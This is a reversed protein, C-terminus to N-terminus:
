KEYEKDGDHGNGYSDYGKGYSDYGKSYSDYGKGYSDYGKGDSEYGKGSDFGKDYSDDGRYFSYGKYRPKYAALAFSRSSYSAFPHCRSMIRLYWLRRRRGNGYGFGKGYGDDCGKYGYGHSDSYDKRYDNGYSKYGYPSYDSYGHGYSTTPLPPHPPPPASNLKQKRHGVFGVYCTPSPAALALGSLSLSSLAVLALKLAM